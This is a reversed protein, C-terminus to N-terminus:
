FYSDVNGSSGNDIKFELKKEPQKQTDCEQTFWFCFMMLFAVFLFSFFMGAKWIVESDVKKRKRSKYDFYPTNNKKMNMDHGEHCLFKYYIVDRAKEFEKFDESLDKTM